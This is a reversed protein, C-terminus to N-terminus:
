GPDYASRLSQDACTPFDCRQQTLAAAMQRFVAPVSHYMTVQEQLLWRALQEGAGARADFPLLTAGNLLSAWFHFLCSGVSWSHLLTLRDEPTIRLDNTYTMVWHLLSRHTKMVGKPRGTSGSTYILCALDTRRPWLPCTRM